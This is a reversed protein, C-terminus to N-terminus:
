MVAAHRREHLNAIVKRLAEDLDESTLGPGARLGADGHIWAGACAADFPDLGQALLGGVIGALVDGAGATALFPSAHTNVMARGDPAALVTDAGKLLVVCGAREAAFRAADIRTKAKELVGPFLREFEGVHPTLVAPAKVIGRLRDAEGAFVTLADADLVLRRGSRALAEVNM